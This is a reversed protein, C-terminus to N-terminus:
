AVGRLGFFEVVDAIQEFTFGADNLEALSEVGADGPYFEEHDDATQQAFFRLDQPWDIVFDWGVAYPNYSEFARRNRFVIENAAFEGLLYEVLPWPALRQQLYATGEEDTIRFNAASVPGGTVEGTYQMELMEVDDLECSQLGLCCFGVKGDKDEAALYGTAQPKDTTRLLNVFEAIHGTM